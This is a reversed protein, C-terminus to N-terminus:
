LDAKWLGHLNCYEYVAVAKDNELAFTAKPEMGPKLIKRQGGNETEVYIWQIFHADEMPHAVSGVQVSVKNGEVTAVPVHKETAADTTNAVMEQMKDGCCVVPVGKDDIMGIFNGCHSCKFFKKM